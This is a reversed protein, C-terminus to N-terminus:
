CRTRPLGSLSVAATARAAPAPAPPEAKGDVKPVSEVIVRGDRILREAEDRTPESREPHQKNRIATLSEIWAKMVLDYVEHKYLAENYHSLTPRKASVSIQLDDCVLRLHDELANGADSVVSRLPAGGRLRRDAEDLQDIVSLRGDSPLAAFFGPDLRRAENWYRRFARNEPGRVMRLFEIKGRVVNRFEAPAKGVRYKECHEAAAAEYGHKRWAHLMARIQRVYTRPVNPFENVTLGTVDQRSGKFQLRSKRLNVKFGGEEVAAVLDPGLKVADVKGNVAPQAIAKPFEKRNTSITIDDAYRTYQCKHDRALMTLRRDLNFSVLNSVLPSTVGGQPLVDGHCCIRAFVAAVPRPFEYPKAMLVGLVRPFTISPFFDALDINLVWRKNEHERANTVVSKTPAFGHVCPKPSYELSLIHNLKRQLIQVSPHPAAITREGGAKKPITFTRYPYRDEKDFIIYALQHWPIELIDAADPGNELTSLRDRLESDCRTLQPKLMSNQLGSIGALM